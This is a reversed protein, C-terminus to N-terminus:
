KDEHKGEIYGSKAASEVSFILSGIALAVAGAAVAAKGVVPLSAFKKYLGSEKVMQLLNNGKISVSALKDAISTKVGTIMKTLKDAFNPNFKPAFKVTAAATGAVAGAGAALKFTDKLGVNVYEKLAAKKADKTMNGNTLIHAISGHMGVTTM